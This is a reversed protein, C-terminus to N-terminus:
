YLELCPEEHYCRQLEQNAGGRGKQRYSLLLGLEALVPAKGASALPWCQLKRLGM